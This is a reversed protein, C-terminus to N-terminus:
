PHIGAPSAVRFRYSVEFQDQEPVSAYTVSRVPAAGWRAFAALLEAENFILEVTEVGYAFKRLHETPGSRHVPTRHAIVTREAVRVTERIHEQFNPVHLLIGSSVVCTFSRDPFPLAAGDAVEFRARPYYDRAMRIMAPSYDVGTYDLRRCLLYELIEYYYGSACGIELLGRADAPQSGVLEALVQFIAQPQNRYMLGLQEQVLTRQREPISADQWATLM